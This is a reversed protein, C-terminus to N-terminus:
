NSSFRFIKSTFVDDTLELASNINNNIKVIESENFFEEDRGRSNKKDQYYKIAGISSSYKNNRLGITNLSLCSSNIGLINEVVYSFGMLETIGGTVIIYSIKRKTLNNIEKKALKLIESIRAEVVETIEYQNITIKDNDSIKFELTENIDAFRRTSTAFTEKLERSVNLDLGYIYSIDKDINKSGLSLMSNKILIGKNFLSIDTKEYGINLIAGLTSETNESKAEFYDGICNFTIDVCEVNADKVLRLIDFVHKKSASALVAKVYLSKSVYDKPDKLYKDDDIKFVIPIISVLEYDEKVKDKSIEGLLRNIDEKEIKENEIEISGEIISLDRENSPICVIAKSIRSGLSKEIEDLALKLSNLAMDYDIIVGRKVGVSNVSTRALVYFRDKIFEAVVIKISDSGIDISTYIDRM